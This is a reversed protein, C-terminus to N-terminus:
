IIFCSLFYVISRGPPSLHVMLFLSVCLFLVASLQVAAMPNHLSLCTERFTKAVGFASRQVKLLMEQMAQVSYSLDPASAPFPIKTQPSKTNNCFFFFFCLGSLTWSRGKISGSSALRHESSPCLCLPPRM